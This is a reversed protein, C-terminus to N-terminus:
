CRPTDAPAATATDERDVSAGEVVDGPDLVNVGGETVTSVATTGGGVPYRALIWRQNTELESWCRFEFLPPEDRPPLEDLDLARKIAGRWTLGRRAESARIRPSHASRDWPGKVKVWQGPNQRAVVLGEVLDVETTTPSTTARRYQDLDEESVFLEDVRTDMGDTYM